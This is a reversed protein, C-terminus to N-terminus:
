RKLASLAGVSLSPFSSCVARADLEGVIPRCTRSTRSYRRGVTTRTTWKWRRLLLRGTVSTSEFVLQPAAYSKEPRKVRDTTKGSTYAVPIVVDSKSIPDRSTINEATNVCATKYNIIVIIILLRHLCDDVRFRVRNKPPFRRPAARCRGVAASFVDEDHWVAM